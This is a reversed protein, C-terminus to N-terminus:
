QAQAQGETRKKKGHHQKDKQGREKSWQTAQGETM